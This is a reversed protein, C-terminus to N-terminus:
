PCSILGVVHISKTTLVSPFGSRANSGGRLGGGDGGAFVYIPKISKKWIEFHGSPDSGNCSEAM